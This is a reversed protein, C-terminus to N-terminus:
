RAVAAATAPDDTAASQRAESRGADDAPPPLRKAILLTPNIIQPNDRLRIYLPGDTPHPVPLASGLFGDPVSVPHAFEPTASVSDILFLDTGILKCAVEVTAPCQLDKLAPLRVLTTLAQWDGAVGKSVVRFKLSGFTSPGFAKSPNLRAVAVQANELTLGGNALSLTAFSSEDGTAVEVTEERAFVAPSQTRISFILSANQPLEGPDTLQINSDNATVSPLVNKGILAVRPRPAEIMAPLTLSRGDRL